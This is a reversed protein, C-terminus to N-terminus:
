HTQTHILVSRVTVTGGSTFVMVPSADWPGDVNIPTSVSQTAPPPAPGTVILTVGAPDCFYNAGRNIRLYFAEGVAVSANLQPLSTSAFSTVNRSTPARGTVAYTVSVGDRAVTCDSELMAMKLDFVYQGSWPATWTVM